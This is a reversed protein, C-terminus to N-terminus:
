NSESSEDRDVFEIGIGISFINRHISLPPWVILLVSLLFCSITEYIFMFGGSLYTLNIDQVERGNRTM